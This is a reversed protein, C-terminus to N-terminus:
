FFNNDKMYLYVKKSIDSPNFFVYECNNIIKIDAMLVDSYTKHGSLRSTLLLNKTKKPTSIEHLISKIPMFVSLFLGAGHIGLYYDTNKMISIQEIMTMNATDVLRILINKPLDEYLKEAIEPGNGTLRGQGQRGKPWPKRWQFTLIKSFKQSSLDKISKPYYITENNYNFSDKFNQVNMYKNINQNLFYYYKSQYKCNPVQEFFLLCPSDWNLPIHIAKSVLFKEKIDRIHIPKNGRSIIKEYFVYNPDNEMKMSELFIVQINEPNLNFYYIISLANMIGGGGWFLNPSDQNRSVFFIIKNHFLEKKKSEKYDYNWSNFYFDYFSSFHNIQSKNNCMMNFFGKELIPLGRTKQNVPGLYIYGDEKWKLPDIIANKIICIVGNKIAMPTISNKYCIHQSNNCSSIYIPVENFRDKFIKFPDYVKCYENENDPIIYNNISNMINNDQNFNLKTDYFKDTQGKYFLILFSNIILLVIKTLLLLFITKKLINYIKNKM